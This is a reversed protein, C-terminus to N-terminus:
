DSPGDDHPGFAVTQGLLGYGCGVVDDSDGHGVIDVGEIHSGGSGYGEPLETLSLFIAAM